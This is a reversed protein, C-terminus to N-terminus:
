AALARKRRVGWAGLGLMSLMLPLAGPVPVATTSVNDFYVGGGDPGGGSAIQFILSDVAAVSPQGDGATAYFGEWTTTLTSVGNLSVDVLDNGLGDNFMMDVTVSHWADRALNTGLQLFNFAGSNHEWWGARFGNAGGDEIRFIGQRSATGSEFPTLDIRLGEQESTSAAKFDFGFVFRNFAAGTSSEGAAAVTPTSPHTTDYNGTAASDPNSIRFVQNGGDDVIEADYDGQGGLGTLGDGRWNLTPDPDNIIPTGNAQPTTAGLAFDDFDTFYTTPLAGAEFAVTTAIMAIASVKMVTM